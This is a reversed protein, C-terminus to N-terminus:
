TSQLETPILSAAFLALEEDNMMEACGHHVIAAGAAYWDGRKAKASEDPDEEDTLGIAILQIEQLKMPSDCM